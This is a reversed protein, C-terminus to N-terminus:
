KKLIIHCNKCAGRYSHPAVAGKVIPPPNPLIDGADTPLQGGNRMIIHCATCPQSRVRHPSIAGPQIPQAAENQSFGLSRESTMFIKMLRGRRYILVEAKDKHQVLRTAETFALIDPTKVGEVAEVMDGALFGCEASELSVEDVLLGETNQPVLYETALEPTLPILEMGLWHGEVLIKKAAGQEKPTPLRGAISPVPATLAVATMGQATSSSGAQAKRKWDASSPDMWEKIAAHMGLQNKLTIYLPKDRRLIDLLVGESMNVGRAVKLFESVSRVPSGNIAKLLDGEKVGSYYAQDEVYKVVVGKEGEPLGYEVAQNPTLNSVTLGAWEADGVGVYLMAALFFLGLMLVALFLLMRRRKQQKVDRIGKFPKDKKM